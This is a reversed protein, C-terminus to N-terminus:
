KAFDQSLTVRIGIWCENKQLKKCLYVKPGRIHIDEYIHMKVYLHKHTHTHARMQLPVHVYSWTHPVYM